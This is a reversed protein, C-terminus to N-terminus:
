YIKRYKNEDPRKIKVENLRWYYAEGKDHYDSQSMKEKLERKIKDTSTYDSLSFKLLKKYPREERVFEGVIITRPPFTEDKFARVVSDMFSLPSKDEFLLNKNDGKKEIRTITVVGKKGDKKCVFFNGKLECDFGKNAFKNFWFIITRKEAAEKTQAEIELKHRTKGLEGAFYSYTIFKAM